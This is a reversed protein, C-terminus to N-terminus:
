KKERENFVQTVLRARGNLNMNFSHMPVETKDGGKALLNMAEIRRRKEVEAWADLWAVVDKRRWRLLRTGPVIFRPPLIDPRRTADAKVGKITRKLLFAIDEPGLLTLEDDFTETTM